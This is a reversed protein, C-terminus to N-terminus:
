RTTWLTSDALDYLGWRKGLVDIVEVPADGTLDLVDVAASELPALIWRVPFATTLRRYEDITYTPAVQLVLRPRAAYTLLQPTGEYVLWAPETAALNRDFLASAAAEATGNASGEARLTRALVVTPALGLVCFGLALAIPRSSLRLDLWRVDSLVMALVVLLIPLAPLTYRFQNQFLVVTVFHLGIFGIGLALLQVRRPAREWLFKAIAVLALINFTWYFVGVPASEFNVFQQALHGVLKPGLLRPDFPLSDSLNASSLDFNFWMNDTQNPVATHWLRTYSFQVNEAAFLGSVALVALITAGLILGAPGFADRRPPRETRMRIVLFVVPAALLLPLYSQRAAYLLGLAAVLGLWRRTSSGCTALGYVALAAFFTISAEALPQATHWSTLPLLPYLVACAMAAWRTAVLLATRYILLSTGLVALLNLVVWGGFPGVVLAPIAALYVSLNNHIFPPPLGSGDGLLGVPFVVNTAIARDRLLTEVETVYWYQDTGRVGGSAAFLTAITVMVVFGALALWTRTRPSRPLLTM